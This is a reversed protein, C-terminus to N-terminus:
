FLSKIGILQKVENLTKLASERAKESGARAVKALRTEDKLIEDIRTRIPGTFAIIDEALQKKM